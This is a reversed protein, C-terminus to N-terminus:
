YTRLGPNMGQLHERFKQVVTETMAQMMGAMMTKMILDGEEVVIKKIAEGVVYDAGDFQGTWRDGALEKEIRSKGKFTPSSALM